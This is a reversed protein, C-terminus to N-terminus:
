ANAVAASKTAAGADPNTVTLSTNSNGNNATNNKINVKIQTSSVFVTTGSVIAFNSNSSSVTAGSVFNTGTITVTATTGSNAISTPSVTTITPAAGVTFCGICTVAGNSTTVTVDRTGVAANAAVVFNATRTTTGTGAVSNVTIGSGASVTTGTGFNTGTITIARTAGQGGTNPLVTFAAATTFTVVTATAPGGASAQTANLTYQTSDALESLAFNWSAAVAPTATQVIFNDSARKVVVTIAGPTTGGSTTGTVTATKSIGTANNAPSTIALTPKTNSSRGVATAAATWASKYLSTVTYSHASGATLGADTCPTSTCSLTRAGDKVLYSTPAPTGTANTWTIRLSDTTQDVAAVAVDTPANLTGVATTGAGAGTTTWYAAATGVGLALVGLAAGSLVAGRRLTRPATM